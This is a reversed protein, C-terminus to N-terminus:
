RRGAYGGYYNVPSWNPSVPPLEPDLNVYEEAGYMIYGNVVTPVAEKDKIQDEPVSFHDNKLLAFDAYKGMELTGKADIIQTQEGEYPAMEQTDGVVILKDGKVALASVCDNTSSPMAIKTNKIILGAQDTNNQVGNEKETGCGALLLMAAIIIGLILILKNTIKM